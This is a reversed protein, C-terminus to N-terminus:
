DSHFVTQFHKSIYHLFHNNLGPSDKEKYLVYNWPEGIDTFPIDYREIIYSIYTENNEFFYESYEPPYINDEKAELLKENLLPIRNKFDLLEISSKNGAIVGTNAVKNNGMINDLLLMSNKAAMKIVPHMKHPQTIGIRMVPMREVCHLCISNLDFHEFFNTKTDPIVDFDLYLVEDYENSFDQLLYLKEFQIFDYNTLKTRILKYDAGCIKAYERHKAELQSEYKKFQLRNFDFVSVHEEVDQTFISYILRKAM